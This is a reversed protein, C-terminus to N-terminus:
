SNIYNEIQNLSIDTMQSGKKWDEYWKITKELANEISWLPTWGLQKQAKSSDLKLIEAEHVQLNIDAQWTAGPIKSCLHNAIWSVSKENNEGPGFNWSDAFFDGEKILKEALILYGSLPELVHQWPRISNPSRIQLIKSTDLSKLFDPILRDTAWDGGGIVNGARATAAKIGLDSLFSKRYASTVLESCAKSSSYPDNGGLKNNELYPLTLEKNEYCKDSTINIIAQIGQTHRAAELVNITGIVNTTFTELPLTYSRRVLSQAAMHFVVSPRVENMLQTLRKLDLINEIYSKTLHKELKTSTFFSPKTPPELSYGYVNAGMHALWLALWGGKFGTHGTIFVPRDKWFNSSIEMNEM